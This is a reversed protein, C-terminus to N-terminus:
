YFLPAAWPVALLGALVVVVLWFVLRQGQL